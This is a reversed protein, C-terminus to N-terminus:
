RGGLARVFAVYSAFDGIVKRTVKEDGLAKRWSIDKGTKEQYRALINCNTIMEDHLM